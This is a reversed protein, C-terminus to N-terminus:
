GGRRGLGDVVSEGGNCFWLRYPTVYDDDPWPLPELLCARRKRWRGSRPGDKAGLVIFLM